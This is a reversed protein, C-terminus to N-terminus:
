LRPEGTRQIGFRKGVLDAKGQQELRGPAAPSAAHANRRARSFKYGAKFLRGGFGLRGKALCLYVQLSEEGFHPMDFDLDEAVAMAAGNMEPLAVATNLTAVLAQRPLVM